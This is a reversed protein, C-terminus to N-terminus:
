QFFGSFLEGKKHLLKPDGDIRWLQVPEDISNYYDLAEKLNSFYESQEALVQYRNKYSDILDYDM